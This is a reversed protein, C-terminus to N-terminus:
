VLFIFWVVAAIFVFLLGVLLGVGRILFVVVATIAVALLGWIPSGTMLTWLLFWIGTGVAVLWIHRTQDLFEIVDQWWPRPPSTPVTTIVERPRSLDTRYDAKAKELAETVLAAIAAEVQMLLGAAKDNLWTQHADSRDPYKAVLEEFERYVRDLEGLTHLCFISIRQMVLLAQTEPIGERRLQRMADEQSREIVEVVRSRPLAHRTNAPEPM